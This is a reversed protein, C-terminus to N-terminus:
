EEPYYNFGIAPMGDRVEEKVEEISHFTPKIKMEKVVAQRIDKAELEKKYWVIYRM